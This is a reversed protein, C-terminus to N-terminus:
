TYRAAFSFIPNLNNFQEVKSKKKKEKQSNQLFISLFNSTEVLNDHCKYWNNKNIAM